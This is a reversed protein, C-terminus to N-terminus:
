YFTPSLGSLVESFDQHIDRLGVFYDVTLVVDEYLHMPNPEDPCIGIITEVRALGNHHGHFKMM